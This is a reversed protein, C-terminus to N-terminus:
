RITSSVSFEGLFIIPRMPIFTPIYGFFDSLKFDKHDHDHDHCERKALLFLLAEPEHCKGYYIFLMLEIEVTYKNKM